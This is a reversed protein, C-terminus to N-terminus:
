TSMESGLQAEEKQGCGQEGSVTSPLWDKLQPRHAAGQRPAGRGASEELSLCFPSIPATEGKPCVLSNFNGGIHLCVMQKM